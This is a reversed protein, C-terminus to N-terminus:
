LGGRTFYWKRFDLNLDALEEYTMEAPPWLSLPATLRYVTPYVEVRRSRLEENVKERIALVAKLWALAGGVVLGILAAVLQEGM